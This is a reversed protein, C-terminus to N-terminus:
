EYETSISRFFEPPTINHYKVIRRATCQRLLELGKPWGMSFHYVVLDDRGVFDNLWEAPSTRGGVDKGSMCFIRTEIGCEEFAGLMGLADAGVADRSALVPILIAAKMPRRRSEPSGGSFISCSASSCTPRTAPRSGRAD